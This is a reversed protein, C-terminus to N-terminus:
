RLQADLWAYAEAKVEDPFAHAGDFRIARFGSFDKCRAEIQENTVLIKKIDSNINM